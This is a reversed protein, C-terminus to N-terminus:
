DEFRLQANLLRGWTRNYPHVKEAAEGARYIPRGENAWQFIGGELNYVHGFGAAELRRAVAASRYGVSCYVIIPTQHSPDQPDLAEADPDVRRAGALHSVDFEDQTRADLLVPKPQDQAELWEALRGTEIWDTGPFRLSILPRLGVAGGEGARAGDGVTAGGLVVLAAALMSRKM